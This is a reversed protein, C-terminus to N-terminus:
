YYQLMVFADLAQWDALPPPTTPCAAGHVKAREIEKRDFWSTGIPLQPGLIFNAAESDMLAAAAPAPADDPAPVWAFAVNPLLSFILFLLVAFRFHRSHFIRTSAPKPRTGMPHEVETASSRENSRSLSRRKRVRM